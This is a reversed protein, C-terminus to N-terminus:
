TKGGGAPTEQSRNLHIIRVGGAEAMLYPETRYQTLDRLRDLTTAIDGLAIECEAVLGAVPPDCAKQRMRHLLLGLVTAPQGVHHCLAGISEVMIRHREGELAVQHSKELLKLREEAQHVIQELYYRVAAMDDEDETLLVQRPLRNNALTQLYLRLRVINVPYKFLLVYGLAILMFCVGGGFLIVLGEVREGWQMRLFLWSLLMGPLVTILMAAVALQGWAGRVTM